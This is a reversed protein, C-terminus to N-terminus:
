GYQGPLRGEGLAKGSIKNDQLSVRIDVSRKECKRTKCRKDGSGM